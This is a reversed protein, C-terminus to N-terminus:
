GDEDNRATPASGRVIEIFMLQCGVCEWYIWDHVKVATDADMRGEKFLFNAEEILEFYVEKFENIETDPDPDRKEWFEEIFSKRESPILNLFIKREQRTIIYRM